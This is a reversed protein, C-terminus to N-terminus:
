EKSSRSKKGLKRLKQNRERNAKALLKMARAWKFRTRM